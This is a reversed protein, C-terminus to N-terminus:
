SAHTGAGIASMFLVFVCLYNDESKLNWHNIVNAAIYFAVGLFIFRIFFAYGFGIGAQHAAKVGERNPHTLLQNYKSILFEVNTPGFGIVTRYNM